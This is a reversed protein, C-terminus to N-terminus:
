HKKRGKSACYAAIGFLGVIWGLGAVIKEPSPERMTIRFADLEDRLARIEHHLAAIEGGPAKDNTVPPDAANPAPGTDAAAVTATGSHGTGTDVEITVEGDIADFVVTGAVDTKGHWFTNGDADKATVPANRCLSKLSFFAKVAIKGDERRAFVNLKHAWVDNSFIAALLFTSTFIASKKM